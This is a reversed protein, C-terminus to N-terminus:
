GHVCRSSCKYRTLSNKEGNEIKIGLKNPEEHEVFLTLTDNNGLTKILKFFNLMGIGLVVKKPCHFTEFNEAELKLHVLVTHSADMAIVKMGTSDFEINADTLIEKLAEILCRFPPSQVTKVELLYSSSTNVDADNSNQIPTSEQLDMDVMNTESQLSM